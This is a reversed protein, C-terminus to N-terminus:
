STLFMIQPQLTLVQIREPQAKVIATLQEIQERMELIIDILQEKNLKRLQSRPDNM